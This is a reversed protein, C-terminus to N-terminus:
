EKVRVRNEVYPVFFSRFKMDNECFRRLNSVSENNVVTTLNERMSINRICSACFTHGCQLVVPVQLYAKYCYFLHVFRRMFM